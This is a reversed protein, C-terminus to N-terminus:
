PSYEAQEGNWPINLLLYWIGTLPRIFKKRQNCRYLHMSKSVRAVSGSVEKACMGWVMFSTLPIFFHV